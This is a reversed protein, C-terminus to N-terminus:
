QCSQPFRLVFSSSPAAPAIVMYGRTALWALSLAHYRMLADIPSVGCFIAADLVLIGHWLVMHRRLLILSQQLVALSRLPSSLGRLPVTVSIISVRLFPLYDAAARIALSSRRQLTDVRVLTTM